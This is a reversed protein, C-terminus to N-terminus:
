RPAEMTTAGSARIEEATVVSVGLPLSQAPEAFRTATVVTEQLTTQALSLSPFAAALALPVAALRARQVTTTM